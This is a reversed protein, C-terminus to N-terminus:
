VRALNLDCSDCLSTHVQYLGVGSISLETVRAQTHHQEYRRAGGPAAARVMQGAALLASPIAADGDRLM